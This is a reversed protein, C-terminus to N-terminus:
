QTIFDDIIAIVKDTSSQYQKPIFDPVKALTTALDKMDYLGLIYGANTFEDLIEKQHDNVHEGYQKERAVAIIKKNYKMATVISGVGAHTIVLRAEMIYTEFDDMQVLDFIKMDKSSYSTTGAQVIVEEQINHKQIAAEIADLLRVFPKDQTGLIVFIM